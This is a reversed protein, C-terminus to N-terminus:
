IKNMLTANPNLVQNAVPKTSFLHCAMFNVIEIFIPQTSDMPQLLDHKLSKNAFLM